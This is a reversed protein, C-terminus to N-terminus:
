TKNLRDRERERKRRERTQCKQELRKLVQLEAAEVVKFAEFAEGDGGVGTHESPLLLFHIDENRLDAFFRNRPLNMRKHLPSIM